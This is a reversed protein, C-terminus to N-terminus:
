KGQQVKRTYEEISMVKTPKTKDIPILKVQVTAYHGAQGTFSSEVRKVVVRQHQDDLQIYEPLAIGAQQSYKFVEYLTLTKNQYNLNESFAGTLEADGQFYGRFKANQVRGIYQTTYGPECIVEQAKFTVTEEHSSTNSSTHNYTFESSLKITEGGEAVFPISVGVKTESAVGLKAGESNSYTFSESEKISKEATYHKQNVHTGNTYSLLEISGGDSYSDVTADLNINGNNVYNKNTINLRDSGLQIINYYGLAKGEKKEVARAFRMGVDEQFQQQNFASDQNLQSILQNSIKSNVVNQQEAFSDNPVTLMSTGIIATMPILAAIKKYKDMNM